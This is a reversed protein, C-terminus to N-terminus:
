LSEEPRTQRQAAGVVWLLAAALSLLFLVASVVKIEVSESAGIPDVPHIARGPMRLLMALILAPLAMLLITVVHGTVAEEFLYLGVAFAFLFFTLQVRPESWVFAIGWSLKTIIPVLVANIVLLATSARLFARAWGYVSKRILSVLAAAAMLFILVFTAWILAAHLYILPALGGLRQERPALLTLLLILGMLIYLVRRSSQNM